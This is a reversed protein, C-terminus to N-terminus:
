FHGLIGDYDVAAKKALIFIHLFSGRTVCRLLVDCNQVFFLIVVSYAEAENFSNTNM